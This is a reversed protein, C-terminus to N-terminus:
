RIECVPVKTGGPLHSQIQAIRNATLQATGTKLDFVRTPNDIPGEVVDLRVSGRTGYKVRVGNKYSVETALDKRGLNSVEKAFESHVKTGYVPGKGAGVKQLAKQAANRLQSQTSQFCKAAARRILDALPGAARSVVPSLTKRVVAGVIPSAIKIAPGLVAYIAGDTVIGAQPNSNPNGIELPNTLILVGALVILVVIPAIEGTPDTHSIPNNWTYAYLNTDAVLGIPDESIFRGQNPDYWRARYHMLGTSEDRERGTFGYRTLSSGASAGFAEYQLQEVVGGSANTLTRTSSQHDQLFYLAGAGASTQRLKDDIDPGNLYDVRNNDSSVDQVIDTGDYIFNTTVGGATRSARRGLADYGYAVTQGSPLTAGTLRGRADWQYTVTGDQDTKTTTQGIADFSYSASGVQSIRNAADATAAFKQAPLLQSTGISTISSIQDDLTYTYRYDEIAQNLANVHKQRKLRSAADFEFITNIGNPRQLQAVRSLTDYVYTFTESGQAITQLRGAADYSYNVPLANPAVMSTPQNAANYSYSVVGMATTESLLRNAADYDWSVSGGQTDSIQKTRGAADYEVTMLADPYTIQSPRHLEDYTINTRRGLQDTFATVNDVADYSVDIFQGLSNRRGIARGLEDYSYTFTAGRQDVIKTLNRANDYALQVFNNLPDTVTALQGRSDYSYKIVRNLPSKVELLEDQDNYVFRYTRNLPDSSSITRNKEDHVWLWRQQLANTVSTLNDNADYTYETTANSSDTTTLVRDLADYTLTQRRNLADNTATLRGIGDYEFTTRHNLADVVATVNGTADYELTTTHNLPDTISTLQGFGDYAFTTTQNLANKISTLNGRADYGFVTERGLRDIARTVNNFVPEFEWRATQGLRNTSAIVNGREDFEDTKETCGCSGITSIIQNTGIDRNITATQGMGDMLGIVYGAANFRKSEIRGLSDTLEVFTVSAGSLSYSYRQFGGDAFTQQIVRNNNYTIEKVLHGRGDTISVLRAQSYGYQTVNDLPDTVTALHLGIASPTYSYLWRRGFSDTVREVLNDSNYQFTISRGVADSVSALNSGTYSLTSTNGNRDVMAVLRRASDFLLLEGEAFRYEFTGDAKQRLVDGHRSLISTLTFILAGDADTGAYSYLRGTKEEPFVLRGAGGMGFTGTLRIDYNDKSGRGFRGITPQGSNLDSTFVRTLELGGRAGGFAIDVATEIKAGTSLDVPGGTRNGPCGCDDGPNGDPNSSAFYWSFDVLGYPQGTAPNIEPVILRGDASVRGYGYVYWQVTDHNFAYLETQTGPNAGLLNPFVMPMPVDSIAGGPQNTYVMGTAVNGPLPTPTRDIPVPTISVRTVPTNDRNRLNANAPVTLQLGPVRPTTIVTTQGPVLIEENEVDIPPLYFVYPVANAQGAVINAPEALVPYTRNPASATRGDIMIPRNPGANIGSLLFAGAANTTASHGDLSITAGIVPENDTSMVRGSLTTEGAALVNLSAQLSRVEENGDLDAAANITFSYSGAELNANALNLTLTSSAGATIQSPQFTAEIGAPLNTATLRALQTFTTHTSTLQVVYTAATGQVATATSPAVSIQFDQTASVTFDQATTAQGFANTLEIRGTISANPVIVRVETRSEFTVLAPLRTTGRGARGLFTVTTEGSNAKLWEGSLTVTSGVTGSQPSFSTILPVPPLVEFSTPSVATGGETQVTVLGTTADDPVVVQLTTQTAAIVTAAIQGGGAEPARTFRVTNREPARGDFREGNITITEATRASAPSFTSIVPPLTLRRLTHNGTDAVIIASSSMSAIGRPTFFGALSGAGDAQGREGSGALTSVAGSAGSAALNPDVQRILSNLADTVIIKGSADIAIGSPEAFRANTASGDAFGRGQGAVTIVTGTSDLRRIRHNGKDVLYVYVISGHVAVGAPSDFRPPLDTSGISGDGAVTSVQGASNILRVAANGTDAVYINGQPDVALGRPSNFRAQTGTGNTFGATGNGAITSVTGDLAIKRIRHNLTDAVYVVGGADVSVGQPNKFQATAAPGDAFGATGNGAVTSVVWQPNGSLDPQLRVARIRNNGADAIYLSDDAGVAVGAPNQFRAQSAVGDAFGPAGALGAITTVSTSSPGPPSTAVVTFADALAVSEEILNIPIPGPVGPTVVRVTNPTLAATSSVTVHAVASTTSTVTILGLEGEPAGGVSTEPGFSARTTGQTWHTNQGQLTVSVTQGQTARTPNVSLLNVSPPAVTSTGTVRVTLYTGATSTIKVKLENFTQVSVTQSVTATTEKIRNQTFLEVGNLHIIASSVRHTGDPAGNDVTVVFPAVVSPPVTFQDTVTNPSGNIRVFERPGYVLTPQGAQAKPVPVNAARVNEVATLRFLPQTFLVAVILLSLSVRAPFVAFLASLLNSLKRRTETFTNKWDM